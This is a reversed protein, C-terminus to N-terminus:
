CDGVKRSVDYRKSPVKGPEGCGSLGRYREIRVSQEQGRQGREGNEELVSHQPRHSIPCDPLLGELGISNVNQALMGVDESM